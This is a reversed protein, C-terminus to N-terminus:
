KGDLDRDRKWSIINENEKVARGFWGTGTWWAYRVTEGNSVKVLDYRRPKYEKANAWGENNFLVDAYSAADKKGSPRQLITCDVEIYNM